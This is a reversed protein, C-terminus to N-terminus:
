RCTANRRGAARGPDSATSITPGAQRKVPPAPKWVSAEHPREDRDDDADGESGGQELHRRQVCVRVDRVIMGLVIVAGGCVFMWLGSRMVVVFVVIRDMEFRAIGTLM